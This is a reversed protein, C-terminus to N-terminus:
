LRFALRNEDEGLDFSLSIQRPALESVNVLANQVTLAYGGELDDVLMDPVKIYQLRRLVIPLVLRLDKILEPKFAPRGEADKLLHSYLTTLDHGLKQLTDDRNARELLYEWDDLLERVLHVQKDDKQVAEHLSYFREKAEEKIWKGDSLYGQETLCNKVFHGLQERNDIKLAFVM